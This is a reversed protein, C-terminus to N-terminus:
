RAVLTHASTFGRHDHGANLVVDFERGIGPEVDLEEAFWFCHHDWAVHVDVGQVAASGPLMSSAIEVRRLLDDLHHGALVDIDAL